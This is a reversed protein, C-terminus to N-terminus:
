AYYYCRNRTFNRLWQTKVNEAAMILVAKAVLLFSQLLAKFGWYDNMMQRRGKVGLTGEGQFLAMGQWSCGLWRSGSGTRCHGKRESGGMMKESQYKRGKKSKM